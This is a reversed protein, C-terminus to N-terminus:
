GNVQIIDHITQHHPPTPQWILHSTSVSHSFCFHTFPLLFTSVDLKEGYSTTGATIFVTLVERQGDAEKMEASMEASPPDPNPPIFTVNVQSLESTEKQVVLAVLLFLSYQNESIYSM